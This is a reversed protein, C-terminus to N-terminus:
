NLHGVVNRGLGISLGLMRAIRLNLTVGLICRRMSSHPGGVWAAQRSFRLFTFAIVFLLLMEAETAGEYPAISLPPAAKRGLTGHRRGADSRSDSTFSDPDTIFRSVSWNGTAAHCWGHTAVRALSRGKPRRSALSRTPARSDPLRRGEKAVLARSCRSATSLLVISPPSVGLKAGDDPGTTQRCPCRSTRTALLSLM